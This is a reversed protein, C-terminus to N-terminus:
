DRFLVNKLVDHRNSTPIYCVVEHRRGRKIVPEPFQIPDAPAGHSATVDFPRKDNTSPTVLPQKPMRERSHAGEDRDNISLDAMDITEVRDTRMVNSNHGPINIVEMRESLDVILDNNTAGPMNPSCDRESWSKPKRTCPCRSSPEGSNPTEKLRPIRWGFRRVVRNRGIMDLKSIDM